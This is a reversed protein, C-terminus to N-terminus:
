FPAPGDGSNGSKSLNGHLSQRAFRAVSMEPGTRAHRLKQPWQHDAGRRRRIIALRSGAQNARWGPLLRRPGPKSVDGPPVDSPDLLTIWTGFTTLPLPSFTEMSMFWWARIKIRILSCVPFRPAQHHFAAGSTDQLHRLFHHHRFYDRQSLFGAALAGAASGQEIKQVKGDNNSLGPFFVYEYGALGNSTTGLIPPQTSATILQQSFDLTDGSTTYSERASVTGALHIKQGDGWTDMLRFSLAM